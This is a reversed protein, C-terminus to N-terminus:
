TAGGAHAPDSRKNFRSDKKDRYKLQIALAEDAIELFSDVVEPDFHAGRGKIIMEFAKETPFPEKRYPRASTVADFFDALASIRADLPIEQGKLGRPYGKGDWREHHNLAIKEAMQIFESDSGELIQGGIVTHQKMVEREAQDLPGPKFLISDPTGIKGIDHMPAAYRISEAKEDGLGMSRAIAAAYHSMRLIHAGTEEDKYEAAKSLKLITERAAQNVKRHARRLQENRDQVQAELEMEHLRMYDHYAKVKLLSGVRAKIETRGVPKILFDDVGAEFATVRAKEDKLGSVMVIPIFRFEDKGKLNRVVEYGDMEPMIVDLLIVDPPNDRVERMAELGNSATVVEHGLPALAAMLIRRNVEEDDVILIRKRAEGNM